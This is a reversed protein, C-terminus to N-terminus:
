AAEAACLLRRAHPGPSRQPVAYSGILSERRRCPGLGFRSRLSHVANWRALSTSLVFADPVAQPLVSHCFFENRPNRGPLVSMGAAIKKAAAVLGTGAHQALLDFLDGEVALRGISHQVHVFEILLPDAGIQIQAALLAPSKQARAAKHAHQRHGPWPEIPNGLGRGRARIGAAAALRAMATADM